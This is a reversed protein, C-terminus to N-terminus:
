PVKLFVFPCLAAFILLVYVSFMMWCATDLNEAFCFLFYMDFNELLDENEVVALLTYRSM